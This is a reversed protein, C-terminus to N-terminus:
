RGTSLIGLASLTTVILAAASIGVAVSALCVTDWRNKRQSRRDIENQILTMHLWRMDTPMWHIVRSKEDDPDERVAGFLPDACERLAEELEEPSMKRLEGRKPLGYHFEKDYLPNGPKPEFSITGSKIDKDTEALERYADFRPMRSGMLLHQTTLMSFHILRLRRNLLEMVRPM